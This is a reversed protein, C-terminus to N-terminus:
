LGIVAFLTFFIGLFVLVNLLGKFSGVLTRMQQRLADIKYFSSLLRAVRFVKLVRFVALADTQESAFVQFVFELLSIIVIVFDFLNALNRLYTNQGFVFGAVIIRMAAELTYIACFAFSAIMMADNLSQNRQSSDTIAISFSNLLIVVMISNNFWDSRCVRMLSLRLCNEPGFILLSRSILKFSEGDM